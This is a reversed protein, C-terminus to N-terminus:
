KSHNALVKRYKAVWTWWSRVTSASGSASVRLSSVNNNTIYLKPGTQRDTHAHRDSSLKRFGQRLGIPLEYQIKVHPIDGHDAPRSRGRTCYTTKQCPPDLRTVGDKDCSRFHVRTVLHVCERGRPHDQRLPGGSRYDCPRKHDDNLGGRRYDSLGKYKVESSKKAVCRYLPSVVYRLGTLLRDRICM